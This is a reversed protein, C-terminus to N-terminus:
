KSVADVCGLDIKTGKEVALFILLFNSLSALREVSSSCFINYREKRAEIKM